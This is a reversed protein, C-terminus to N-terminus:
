GWCGSVVMWVPGVVVGARPVGVGAVVRVPVRRAVVWGGSGEVGLLHDVVVGRVPDGGGFDHEAHGEVAAGEGVGVAGALGEGADALAGPLGAHVVVLRQRLGAGGDGLVGREDRRPAVVGRGPGEDRVVRGVDDALLRPQDLVQPETATHPPLAAAVLVAGIAQDRSHTKGTEGPEKTSKNFPSSPPQSQERLLLIDIGHTTNRGQVGAVVQEAVRM